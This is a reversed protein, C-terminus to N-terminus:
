RNQQGTTGAMLDLPSAKVVTKFCLFCYAPVVAWTSFFKQHGHNRGYRSSIM